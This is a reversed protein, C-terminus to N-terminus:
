DRLKKRRVRPAYHQVDSIGGIDDNRLSVPEREDTIRSPHEEGRDDWARRKENEGIQDKM